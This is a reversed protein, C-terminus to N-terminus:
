GRRMGAGLRVRGADFVAPPMAAAPRAPVLRPAPAPRGPAAATPTTALARRMGAGLRVRGTDAANSPCIRRM